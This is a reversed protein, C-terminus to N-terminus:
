LVHDTSEIKHEMRSLWRIKEEDASRSQDIFITLGSRILSAALRSVKHSHEPNAPDHSHNVFISPIEEAYCVETRAVIRM